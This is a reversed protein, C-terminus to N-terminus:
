LDLLRLFIACGDLINRRAKGDAYDFIGQVFDYSGGAGAFQPLVDHYLTAGEEVIRNQPSKLLFQLALHDAGTHGPQHAGIARGKIGHFVLTTM